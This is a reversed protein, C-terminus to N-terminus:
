LVFASTAHYYAQVATYVDFRCIDIHDTMLVM